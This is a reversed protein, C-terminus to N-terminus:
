LVRHARMTYVRKGITHQVKRSRKTRIEPTTGSVMRIMLELDISPCGIASCYAALHPRVNSLDVFRDISGGIAAWRTPLHFTRKPPAGSSSHPCYHACLSSRRLCGEKDAERGFRDDSQRAPILDWKQIVVHHHRMELLSTVPKPDDAAPAGCGCLTFLIMIVARPWARGRANQGTM